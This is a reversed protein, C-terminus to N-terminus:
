RMTYMDSKRVIKHGTGRCQLHLTNKFHLHHMYQIQLRHQSCFFIYLLADPARAGLGGPSSPLSVPGRFVEM